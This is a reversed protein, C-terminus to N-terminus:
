KKEYEHALDSFAVVLDDLSMRRTMVHRGQIKQRLQELFDPHQTCEYFYQHQTDLNVTSQQDPVGVEVTVNQEKKWAAYEEETKFMPMPAPREIGLTTFVADEIQLPYQGVLQRLDDVTLTGQFTVSYQSTDNLEKFSQKLQALADDVPLAMLAEIEATTTPACTGSLDLMSLTRPGEMSTKDVRNQMTHEVAENLTRRLIDGSIARETDRRVQEMEPLTPKRATPLSTDNVLAVAAAQAEPPMRTLEDILIVPQHQTRQEDSLKIVNPYGLLLESLINNAEPYDHKESDTLPLIDHYEKLEFDELIDDAELMFRQHTKATGLYEDAALEEKFVTAMELIHLRFEAEVDPHMPKNQSM